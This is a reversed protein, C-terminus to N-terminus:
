WDTRVLMAIDAQGKNAFEKDVAAPSDAGLSDQAAAEREASGMDAALEV